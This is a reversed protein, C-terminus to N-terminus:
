IHILSLEPNNDRHLESVFQILEEINEEEYAEFFMGLMRRSLRVISDISQEKTDKEATGSKNRLAQGLIQISKYAAHIQFLYEERADSPNPPKVLNSKAPLMREKVNSDNKRKVSALNEEPDDTISITGVKEGLRIFRDDKEELSLMNAESFLSDCNSIM